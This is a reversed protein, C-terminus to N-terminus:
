LVDSQLIATGHHAETLCSSRTLLCFISVYYAHLREFTESWSMVRLLLAFSAELRQTWADSGKPLFKGRFGIENRDFLSLLAIWYIQMSANATIHKNSLAWQRLSIIVGNGIYKGVREKFIVSPWVGELSKANGLFDNTNERQYITIIFSQALTAIVRLFRKAYKTSSVESSCAFVQCM